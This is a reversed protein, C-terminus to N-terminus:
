IPGRFKELGKLPKDDGEAYREFDKGQSEFSRCSGAGSSRDLKLLSKERAVTSETQHRLHRSGEDETGERRWGESRAGVREGPWSQIM